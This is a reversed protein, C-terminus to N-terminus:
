KKTDLEPNPIPEDELIIQTPPYIQAPDDKVDEPVESINKNQDDM